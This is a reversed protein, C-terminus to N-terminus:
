EDDELVLIINGEKMLLLDKENPVRVYAGNGDDPGGLFLVKDGIELKEVKPGKALVRYEVGETSFQSVAIGSPTQGWVTKKVLVFDNRPLYKM